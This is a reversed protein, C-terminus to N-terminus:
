AFYVSALDINYSYITYFVLFNCFIALFKYISTKLM